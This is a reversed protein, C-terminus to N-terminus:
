DEVKEITGSSTGNAELTPNGKYYVKGGSVVNAVMSESVSVEMRGYGSATAELTKCQLGYGKFIASKKTNVKLLEAKGTIDLKAKGSINVDLETAEIALQVKASRGVSVVASQTKATMDLESDATVVIRLNSALPADKVSLTSENNVLISEIPSKTYIKASVSVGDLRNTSKFTLQLEDEVIESIVKNEKIGEIALVVKNSSGKLLEAQIGYDVSVAKFNGLAREVEEQALLSTSSSIILIALSAIINKM